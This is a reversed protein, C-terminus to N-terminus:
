IASTDLATEELDAPPVDTQARLFQFGSAGRQRLREFRPMEPEEAVLATAPLVPHPLSLRVCQLFLGRNCYLPPHPRSTAQGESPESCSVAAGRGPAGHLDDGVIPHGISACHLRLQHQRGTRPWLQVTTFGGQASPTRQLVRLETLCPKGEVPDDIILHDAEILGLVIARYEKEVLHEDFAHQIAANATQTKAVVVPGAVRMDLRHRPLPVSLCDSILSPRLVIPLIDAMTLMSRKLTNQYQMTHVGAPKHVIACFDDEHHVDFNYSSLLHLLKAMRDTSPTLCQTQSVPLELTLMDGPQVAYGGNMAEGNVLLYGKHAARNARKSSVLANPFAKTGYRCLRRSEYNGQCVDDAPVCHTIKKVGSAKWLLLRQYCEEESPM